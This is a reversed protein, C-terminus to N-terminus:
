RSHHPGGTRGNQLRCSDRCYRVQRPQPYEHIYENLLRGPQHGLGMYGLINYAYSSRFRLTTMFIMLSSESSYRIRRSRLLLMVGEAFLDEPTTVISSKRFYPSTHNTTIGPDIDINEFVDIHKQHQSSLHLIAVLTDSWRLPISCHRYYM